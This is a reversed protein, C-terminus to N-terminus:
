FIRKCCNLCISDNRLSYLNQKIGNMGIGNFVGNYGNYGNIVGNEYIYNWNKLIGRVKQFLDEIQFFYFGDVNNFFFEVFYFDNFYFVKSFILQFNFVRCMNDLNIM